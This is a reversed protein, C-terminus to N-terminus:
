GNKLKEKESDIMKREEASIEDTPTTTVNGKKAKPAVKKKIVPKVDSPISTTKLKVLKVREFTLDCLLADGSDPDEKVDYATMILAQRTLDQSRPITTVLDAGVFEYLKVPRIKARYRGTSEDYKEGSMLNEFVNNVFDKYSTRVASLSVDTTLGQFFQTISAPLYNALGENMSSLKVADPQENFNNPLGGQEDRVLSVDALDAISITGSLQIVPNGSTFNDAVMTNSVPNKTVDGRMSKSYAQVSDFYIFGQETDNGTQDEDYGYKLGITM